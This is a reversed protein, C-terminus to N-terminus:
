PTIAILFREHTGAAIKSKAPPDHAEAIGTTYEPESSSASEVLGRGFESAAAARKSRAAAGTDSMVKSPRGTPPEGM